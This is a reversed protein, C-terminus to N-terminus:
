DKAISIGLKALQATSCASAHFYTCVVQYGPRPLGAPDVLGADFRETSSAGSWDFIYLRKIRSNSRALRFMYQLAKKARTLGEGHHNPFAGGFQVVGGTETLWVNGPVAALVARTRTSSFRNTDSYNHLGWTSPLSSHLRRVDSEFSKIYAITPRVNNQDLVDLGVNTCKPCAKKLAVYYAASQSATPSSFLGRVNGRNAENWPQYLKISPFAKMFKKIDATYTSVSPMKEALRGRRSHYFAVLVQIHMAQAKDLFAHALTLDTPSVAADYPAIYRTIKTHLQTFLPSIFMAPDEDAVGVTFSSAARAKASRASVASSVAPVLLLALLLSLLPALRRKQLLM